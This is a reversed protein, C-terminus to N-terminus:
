KLDYDLKNLAKLFSSRMMASYPNYKNMDHFLQISDNTTMSQLEYLLKAGKTDIQTPVHGIEKLGRGIFHALAQSKAAMIDHQKATMEIVNLGKRKFYNKWFCYNLKGSKFRDMVLPLDKFGEKSSDPGFMPHTLLSKIGTNEFAKQLVLKPHVKVSLVDIILNNSNYYKKHVNIIQEFKNIPVCYFIVESQFIAALNNTVLKRESAALGDFAKTNTDYLVITFDDKILRFLTKGFRGFGIISIKKMFKIIYIFFRRKLLNDLKVL